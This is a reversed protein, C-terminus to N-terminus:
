HKNWSTRAEQSIQTVTRLKQRQFPSRRFIDTVYNPYNSFSLTEFNFKIKVM